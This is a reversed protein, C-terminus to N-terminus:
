EMFLKDTDTNQAFREKALAVSQIDEFTELHQFILKM